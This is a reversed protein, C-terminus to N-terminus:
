EGKLEQWKNKIGKKTKNVFNKFKKIYEIELLRVDNKKSVGNNGSKAKKFKRTAM